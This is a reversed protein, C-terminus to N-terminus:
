RESFEFIYFVLFGVAEGQITLNSFLPINRVTVTVDFQTRCFINKEVYSKRKITYQIIIIQILVISVEISQLHIDNM